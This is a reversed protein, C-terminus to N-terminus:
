SAAVAKAIENFANEAAKAGREKGDIVGIERRKKPFFHLGVEDITTFMKRQSQKGTQNKRIKAKVKRKM